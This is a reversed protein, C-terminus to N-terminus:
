EKWGQRFRPQKFFAQLKSIPLLDARGRFLTTSKLRLATLLKELEPRVQFFLDFSYRVALAVANGLNTLREQESSGIGVLLL